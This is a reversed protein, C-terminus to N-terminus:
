LTGGQVRVPERRQTTTGDGLQGRSNDGWCWVDGGTSIGCIHSGFSAGAIERFRVQTKVAAPELIIQNPSGSGTEGNANWGWCWAEGGAKLACTTGDGAAITEFQHDGTVAVPVRTDATGGNGLPGGNGRGWCWAKGDMDLACAHSFGVSLSAFRHGGPVLVAQRSGAIDGNSGWCWAEQSATLGCASAFGTSISVLPPAEVPAFLGDYSWQGICRAVGNTQLACVTALEASVETYHESGIRLPEGRDMPLRFEQGARLGWCWLAGHQDLGCLFDRAAALRTFTRGSAATVPTLELLPASEGLQSRINSGWCFLADDATVGCSADFGAQVTVFRESGSVRVPTPSGQLSGDGLAAEDNSGWCLAEGNTTVGCTHRVGADIAAFTRGGAVAVPAPADSTSGDGLQGHRNYGWCWAAGNSQLACSHGNGMADGNTTIATFRLTTNVPTPRDIKDRTSEVGLQQNANRGWCWAIGLSDLACTRAGGAAIQTYSRDGLVPRPTPGGKEPPTGDCHNTPPPATCSWGLGEQGDTGDGWCWAKGAADLACTHITGASIAIFRQGGTVRVPTGTRINAGAGVQFGTGWCWAEGNATLACTHTGGSTVATFTLGGSVPRPTSSAVLVGSGLEGSQGEDGDDGWCWAQGSSTLACAHSYDLTVAGVAEALSVAMPRLARMTRGQGFQGQTNDGWCLVAGSERLACTGLAYAAIRGTSM